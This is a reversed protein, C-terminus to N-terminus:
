GMKVKGVGGKGEGGLAIGGREGGDKGWGYWGCGRGRMGEKGELLGTRDWGM